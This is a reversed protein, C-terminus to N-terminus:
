SGKQDLKEHKKREGQKRNPLQSIRVVSDERVSCSTKCSSFGLGTSKKLVRFGDENKSLLSGKKTSKTCEKYAALFPDQDYKRLGRRSSSKLPHQFTCPPLPIPIGHVGSNAVNEVPCPPPPLRELVCLDEDEKPRTMVKSVGPKNEWLFPINGHSNHVKNNHNM